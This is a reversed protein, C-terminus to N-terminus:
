ESFITFFITFFHYFHYFPLIAGSFFHGLTGTQTRPPTYNSNPCHGCLPPMLKFPAERIAFPCLSCTSLRIELCRTDAATGSGSQQHIELRPTTCSALLQALAKRPKGRGAEKYLSINITPIKKLRICKIIEKIGIIKYFYRHDQNM